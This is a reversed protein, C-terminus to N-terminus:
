RPDAAPLSPARPPPEARRAREATRALAATARSLRAIGVSQQGWMFVLFILVAAVSFPIEERSWYLVGAIGLTSVSTLVAVVTPGSRPGRWAGAEGVAAEDEMRRSLDRLLLKAEMETPPVRKTESM